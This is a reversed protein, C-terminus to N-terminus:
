FGDIIKPYVHAGLYKLGSDCAFTVVRPGIEKALEIAGVLNLGTSAGCFVGEENALQRCMAVGKEQDIARIESLVSKNLFPPEFGVGIGEVQHSGGKGTTLLPSQLPEFAVLEIKPIAKRLGKWAGMIAGGTGVSACLIDIKDGLQKTIENGM